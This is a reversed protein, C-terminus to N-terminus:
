HWIGMPDILEDFDSNGRFHSNESDSGSYEDPDTYYADHVDFNEFPKGEGWGEPFSNVDFKGINHEVVLISEDDPFANTNSQTNDGTCVRKEKRDYSTNLMSHIAEEEFQLGNGKFSNDSLVLNFGQALTCMDKGNHLHWTNTKSPFTSSELSSSIARYALPARLNSEFKCNTMKVSVTNHKENRHRKIRHLKRNFRWLEVSSPGPTVEEVPLAEYRLEGSEFVQKACKESFSPQGCSVFSCQNIEISPTHLLPDNLVAIASGAGGLFNCGEIAASEARKLLLGSLRTPLATDCDTGMNFACNKTVFKGGQNISIMADDGSGKSTNPQDESNWKLRGGQGETAQFTINYFGTSGATVLFRQDSRANLNVVIASREGLGIFELDKDVTMDVMIYDGHDDEHVGEVLYIRDGDKAQKIATSIFDHSKAIGYTEYQYRTPPPPPHDYDIDGYEDLYDGDEDVSDSDYENGDGYATTSREKYNNKPYVLHGIAGPKKGSGFAFPISQIDDNNGDEALQIIDM